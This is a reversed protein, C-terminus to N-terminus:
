YYRAYFARVDDLSAALLDAHDGIGPRSLPHSAPYLMTPLSLWAEGYPADEYNQRRENRVVEREVDMKEQTIDLGTMRDAELWLFLELAQAPGLDYYNTREDGTSANNSGGVSEMARDFGGEGVARTGKFMLHEFLHAFGSRGAPDDISGVDYWLDVVV